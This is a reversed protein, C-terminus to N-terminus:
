ARRPPHGACQWKTPEQGRVPVSFAVDEYVDEKRETAATASPAVTKPVFRALSLAIFPLSILSPLGWFVLSPLQSLGPILHANDVYFATGLVVYSGIQSSSNSCLTYGPGPAHLLSVWRSKPIVFTM